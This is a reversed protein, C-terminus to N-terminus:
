EGGVLSLQIFDWFVPNPFGHIPPSIRTRSFIKWCLIATINNKNM